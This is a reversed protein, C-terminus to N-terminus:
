PGQDPLGATLLGASRGENGSTTLHHPRMDECTYGGWAEATHQRAGRAIIRQAAVKATRQARLRTFFAARRASLPGSLGEKSTAGVLARDLADSGELINARVIRSESPATPWTWTTRHGAAIPASQTCAHRMGGEPKATRSAQQAPRMAASTICGGREPLAGPQGRSGGSTMPPKQTSAYAATRM